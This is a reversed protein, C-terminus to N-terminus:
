VPKNAMMHRNADIKKAHASILVLTTVVLRSIILEGGTVIPIAEFTATLETAFGQTATACSVAPLDGAWAGQRSAASCCLCNGNHPRLSGQHLRTV